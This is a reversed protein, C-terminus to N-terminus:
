RRENATGKNPSLSYNKKKKEWTTQILRLTVVHRSQLTCLVGGGQASDWTQVWTM